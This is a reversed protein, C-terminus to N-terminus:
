QIVRGNTIWHHVPSSSTQDHHQHTLVTHWALYTSGRCEALWLGTTLSQYSPVSHRTICTSVPYEEMQQWCSLLYDWQSPLLPTLHPMHIIHWKDLPSLSLVFDCPSPLPLVPNPPLSNGKRTICTYIQPFLFYQMSLTLHPLHLSRWNYDLPSHSLYVCHLPPVIGILSFYLFLFILRLFLKFFSFMAM